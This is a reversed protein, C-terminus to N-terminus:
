RSVGATGRQSRDPESSHLRVDGDIPSARESAAQSAALLRQGYRDVENRSLPRPIQYASLLLRAGDRSAEKVTVSINRIEHVGRQSLDPELTGLDLGLIAESLLSRDGHQEAHIVVDELELLAPDTLMMSWGRARVRALLEATQERRDADRITGLWRQVTADPQDAILALALPPLFPIRRGVRQRPRPLAEPGASSIFVLEQDVQAALVIESELDAAVEELEPRIRDAIDLLDLLDSQGPANLAVPAIRGYGGRFFLLPSADEGVALDIVRGLVISHDGADLVDVIECDVWALADALRPCGSSSLSWRVGAFKDSGSTAFRRCLSEQEASLVNVAFKGFAAIQPFTTSSKDPLFAVLPPELSVSTFSGITMGIPREDDLATIAVVGTPFHGLVHRFDKACVPGTDCALGQRSSSEMLESSRVLGDGSVHRESALQQRAYGGPWDM